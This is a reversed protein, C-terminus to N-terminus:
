GTPAFPDILGIGCDVFDRTNRTALDAAHIRVIAAIQADCQSIPLGAARRQTAIDAYATAAAADFGLVRGHLDEEFIPRVAAQLRDRRRGAPLLSLGYYIAAQTISTTFLSSVAQAALWEAVHPALQVRLMKSVINTDLVIV